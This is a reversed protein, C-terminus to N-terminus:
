YDKTKIHHQIFNHAEKKTKFVHYDPQNSDWQYSQVVAYRIKKVVKTVRHNISHVEEYPEAQIYLEGKRPIKDSPVKKLKYWDEGHKVWDKIAM